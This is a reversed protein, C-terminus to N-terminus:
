EKLEASEKIVVAYMEHFMIQNKKVATNQTLIKRNQYGIQRDTWAKFQKWAVGVRKFFKGEVMVPFIRKMKRKLIHIVVM